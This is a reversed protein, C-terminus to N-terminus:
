YKAESEPQRKGHSAKKCLYINKLMIKQKLVLIGNLDCYPIFMTKKSSNSVYIEYLTMISIILAPSYNEADIIAICIFLIM